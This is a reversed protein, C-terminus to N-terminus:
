KANGIYDKPIYDKPNWLIDHILMALLEMQYLNLSADQIFSWLLNNIEPKMQDIKNRRYEENYDNVEKLQEVYKIQHEQAKFKAEEM